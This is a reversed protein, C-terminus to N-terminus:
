VAKLLDEFTKFPSDAKVSIPGPAGMCVFYEWDKTTTFHAGMVCMSLLTESAGLWYYGDHPQKWVYDAAIGGGGGTMNVVKIPKGIFKEMAAALARNITDTGGGPSSFVVNTIPREPWEASISIRIGSMLIFIPILLWLKKM